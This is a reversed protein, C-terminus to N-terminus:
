RSNFFHPLPIFPSTSLDIPITVRMASAETLILEVSNKLNELRTVRLFHFLDSEEYNEPYFVLRMLCM